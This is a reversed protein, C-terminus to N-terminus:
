VSLFVVAVVSLLIGAYNLPSLREKFLVFALCSSLVITSINLVPYVFAANSEYLNLAKLLAYISFYNPIGLVMGGLMNKLEFRDRRVGFTVVAGILFAVGFCFIPFTRKFEEDPFAESAVNLLTDVAGTGLFVLAILGYNKWNVGSQLARNSKLAVLVLAILSLGFGIGNLWGFQERVLSLSLFSTFAPIVMSMKSAITSVAVSVQQATRAMLFFSAIFLSGLGLVYPLWPSGLGLRNPDIEGAFWLGVLACTLYNFVIAQLTNLKFVHFYKFIIFFSSTLLTCIVLWIM